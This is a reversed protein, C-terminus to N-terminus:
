KKTFKQSLVSSLAGLGFMLPVTGLSFILMSLAGKLPDGTSLAYLQMAQLPGCPMLGNLLGIYFPSNSSKREDIKKAFIKPMRPNLRRLWPFVNMMNLGMIVMFGGAAIQILGKADGSLSVVSGLVGVVGGILTYSLVRGLNYLASPRLAAMRSGDGSLRASQPICQSLNIGGCMAICHVSTLLGILFLVGYGMGEKAEPFRNFLNTLGFHRMIIYAAFIILAAGILRSGDSKGGAAASGAKEDQIVQYDLNEIKQIIDKSTIVTEDYTIQAFGSSYSVKAMEIGPTRNLKKEIRNECNVCTMGNIKLKRTKFNQEM